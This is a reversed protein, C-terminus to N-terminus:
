TSMSGSASTALTAADHAVKAAMEEITALDYGYMCGRFFVEVSSADTMSLSHKIIEKLFPRRYVFLTKWGRAANATYTLCGERECLGLLDDALMDPVQCSAVPKGACVMQCYGLVLGEYWDIRYDGQKM